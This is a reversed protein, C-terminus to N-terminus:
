VCRMLQQSCGAGRRFCPQATRFANVKIVTFLAERVCSSAADLTKTKPRHRSPRGFVCMRPIFCSRLSLSGDISRIATEVHSLAFLDTSDKKGM